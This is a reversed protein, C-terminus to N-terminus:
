RRLARPQEVMTRGTRWSSCALARPSAVLVRELVTAPFWVVASRSVHVAGLAVGDAKMDFVAAARGLERTPLVIDVEHAAVLMRRVAEAESCEDRCAPSYVVTASTPSGLNM